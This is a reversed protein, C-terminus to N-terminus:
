LIAYAILITVSMVFIEILWESLSLSSKQTEKWDQSPEISGKAKTELLTEM